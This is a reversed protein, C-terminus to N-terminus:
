KVKPKKQEAEVSESDVSKALGQSILLKGHKESVLIVSGAKDQGFDVKLEVQM